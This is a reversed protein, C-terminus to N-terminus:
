RAFPNSLAQVEIRQRTLLAAQDSVLYSVVDAVDAGVAVRGFSAQADLESASSGVLAQALRNGMDSVTLGPAVVNVHIGHSLEEAALTWALAEMACKAMTYPASGPAYQTSAVSSVFVVDGRQGARLQPLLLGTLSFPGFVHTAMLRAPESPDSDAVSQGRSAIGANHVLVDLGGHHAVLRSALEVNQEHDAVDSAYAVCRGGASEVARVTEAAEDANRRYTIAVSLGDAALRQAIARGIGRSGGTVLAVRDM